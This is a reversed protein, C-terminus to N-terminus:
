DHCAENVRDNFPKHPCECTDDAPCDYEHVGGHFEAMERLVGRVQALERKLDDIENQYQQEVSM